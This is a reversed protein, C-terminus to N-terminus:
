VGPIGIIDLTLIGSLTFTAGGLYTSVSMSPVWYNANYNNSFIPYNYQPGAATVLVGFDNSSGSPAGPSIGLRTIINASALTRFDYFEIYGIYRSGLSTPISNIAPITGTISDIKLAVKYSGILFSGSNNSAPFESTTFVCNNASPINGDTTFAIAGGSGYPGPYCKLSIHKSMTGTFAPYPSSTNGFSTYKSNLKTNILSRSM